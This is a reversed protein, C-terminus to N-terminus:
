GEIHHEVRAAKVMKGSSLDARVPAPQILPERWSAGVHGDVERVLRAAETDGRTGSVHRAVLCDREERRELQLRVVLHAEVHWERHTAHARANIPEGTGLMSGLTVLAILEDGPGARTSM